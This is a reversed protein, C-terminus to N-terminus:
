DLADTKAEPEVPQVQNAIVPMSSNIPSIVKTDLMNRIQNKVVNFAPLDEEAMPEPPPFNLRLPDIQKGNKWFRYCVHPGTALGTSGVYGITQGQRVRTGPRIGKAFGKMHLYQTEFTKDHRIKVFNGNGKTYSAMIVTGDATAQIPTGYDAAFDTGLHARRIKLVPHFRSPNYRSSIRYRASIPSMLFQRVMPRGQDDFFGHYKDNEYYYAYYEQGGTAFYAGLLKGVGSPNGDIYEKEYVLKYVDGHQVYDFSIVWGLAEEMKTILGYAVGSSAMAVWLSSNITGEDYVVQLERPREVVRITNSDGLDYIVYKRADPEYIFYNPPLATDRYVLAFNNGQRMNRTSAIKSEDPGYKLKEAAQALEFVKQSGIGAQSLIDSLFQNRQIVGSDVMFSDLDFGYSLLKPKVEAVELAAPDESQRNLFNVNSKPLLFLGALIILLVSLIIWFHKQM